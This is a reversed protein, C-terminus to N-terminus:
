FGSMRYKKIQRIGGVILSIGGIFMAISLGGAYGSGQTKGYLGFLTILILVIGGIVLAIGKTKEKSGSM